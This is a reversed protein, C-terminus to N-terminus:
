RWDTEKRHWKEVFDHMTYVALWSGIGVLAGDLDDIM